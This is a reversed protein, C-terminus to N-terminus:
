RGRSSADPLKRPRLLDPAWTVLLGDDVREIREASGDNWYIAGGRVTGVAEYSGHPWVGLLGHIVTAFGNIDLHRMERRVRTETEFLIVDRSVAIGCEGGRVNWWVTGALTPRDFRLPMHPRDEDFPSYAEAVADLWARSGVVLGVLAVAWLVRRTWRRTTIRAILRATAYLVSATVAVLLLRKWIPIPALFGELMSSPPGLSISEIGLWFLLSVLLCLLLTRRRDM